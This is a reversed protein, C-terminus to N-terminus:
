KKLVTVVTVVIWFLVLLIPLLAPLLPVENAESAEVIPYRGSRPTSVDIVDRYDEPLGWKRLEEAAATINGRYIGVLCLDHRGMVFWIASIVIEVIAIQTAVPSLSGQVILVAVLASELTVFISFRTWMRTLHNTFYTTKLEYDTILFQPLDLQPPGNTM